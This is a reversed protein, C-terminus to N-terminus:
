FTREMLAPLMQTMIETGKTGLVTAEVYTVSACFINISYPFPEQQSHNYHGEVISTKSCIFKLLQVYFVTYCHSFSMCTVTSMLSLRHPWPFASELTDRALWVPSEGFTGLTPAWRLAMVTQHNAAWTAIM